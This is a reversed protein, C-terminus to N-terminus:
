NRCTYVDPVLCFSFVKSIISVRLHVIPQHNVTNGGWKEAVKLNKTRKQLNDGALCKELSRVQAWEYNIEEKKAFTQGGGGEQGLEPAPSAAAEPELVPEIDAEIDDTEERKQLYNHLVDPHNWIKCCVAFAKLPNSM